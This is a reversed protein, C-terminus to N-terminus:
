RPLELLKLRQVKGSPGRPLDAVFCIQRPTKYRGLHKECFARFEAEDFPVGDRLEDKALTEKGFLRAAGGVAHALGLWTKTLISPEQVPVRRTRPAPRRAPTARARTTSARSRSTSRSTPSSSTRTAM